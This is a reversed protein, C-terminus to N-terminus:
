YNSSLLDHRRCVPMDIISHAAPHESRFSAAAVREALAEKLEESFGAQEINRRASRGGELMADETMQALRRGMPSDKEEEEIDHQGNKKENNNM